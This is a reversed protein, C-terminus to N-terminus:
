YYVRSQRNKKVEGRRKKSQLRERQSARTPKTERRKNISPKLLDRLASALRSLALQRNKFQNRNEQVTICICGKILNSKYKSNILFKQYSSLAKSKQVDFIIEVRSDTKNVKQGGPGSAKSFRWKIENAPILVRPSIALDM